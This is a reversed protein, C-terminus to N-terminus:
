GRFNQETLLKAALLKREITGNGSPIILGERAAYEILLKEDAGLKELKLGAKRALVYLIRNYTERERPDIKSSTEQQSEKSNDLIFPRPEYPSVLALAWDKECGYINGDADSSLPGHSIAPWSPFATEDNLINAVKYIIQPTYVRVCHEDRIRELPGNGGPFEETHIGAFVVWRTGESDNACRFKFEGKDDSTSIVDLPLPLEKNWCRYECEDLPSRKSRGPLDRSDLSLYEGVEVFGFTSGPYLEQNMTWYAPILHNKAYDEMDKATVEENILSSLLMAAEEETLRSKLKLKKHSM